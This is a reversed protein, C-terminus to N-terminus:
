RMTGGTAGAAAVGPSGTAGPAAAGATRDPKAVGKDARGCFENKNAVDQVIGLVPPAPAGAGAPRAPPPGGLPDVAEPAAGPPGQPQAAQKAEDRKPPRKDACGIDGDTRLAIRDTFLLRTSAADVAEVIVAAPLIAGSPWTDVPRPAPPEAGREALYRFRLRAPGTPLPHAAGFHLDGWGAATAPLPAEARVLATGRGTEIERLSVARLERGGSAVPVEQAFFLSNPGGRFVFGQPELGAWRARKLGGIDRELAVLARGLDDAADVGAVSRDTARLLVATSAVLGLLVLASLAFTILTEALLFGADPRARRTM